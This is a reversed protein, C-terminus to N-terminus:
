CLAFGAGQLSHNCIGDSEGAELRTDRRGGSSSQSNTIAGASVAEEGMAVYGGSSSEHYGIHLM